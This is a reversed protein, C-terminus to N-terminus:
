AWEVSILRVGGCQATHEHSCRLWTLQLLTQDDSDSAGLVTPAGFICSTAARIFPFRALTKVNGSLDVCVDTRSVSHKHTHVAGCSARPVGLTEAGRDGAEFADYGRGKCSWCRNCFICRTFRCHPCRQAHM